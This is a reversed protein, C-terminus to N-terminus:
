FRNSGGVFVCSQSVGRRVGSELRSTALASRSGSGAVSGVFRLMSTASARRSGGGGGALASTSPCESPGSLRVTMESTLLPAAEGSDLAATTLSWVRIVDAYHNFNQSKEQGSKSFEGFFIKEIPLSKPRLGDVLNSQKFAKSLLLYFVSERRSKRGM